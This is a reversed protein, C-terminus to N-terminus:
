IAHVFTTDLVWMTARLAFGEGLESVTEVDKGEFRGSLTKALQEYQESERQLAEQEATAAKLDPLLRETLFSQYKAVEAPGPLPEDPETM